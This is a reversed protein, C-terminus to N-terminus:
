RVGCGTILAPYTFLRKKKTADPDVLKLELKETKAAPAMPIEVRYPLHMAGYWQFLLNQLQNIREPTVKYDQAVRQTNEVHVLGGSRLTFERLEATDPDMPADFDKGVYYLGSLSKQSLVVTFIRVGHTSLQELSKTSTAGNTQAVGGAFLLVSDGFRPTGFKNMAQSLALHLDQGAPRKEDLLSLSALKKRLDDRTASFDSEVVPGGYTLLALSDEPRAKTLLGDTMAAIIQVASSNLRSSSDVVLIIRKPSGHTTASAPTVTQGRFKAEIQDHKMGIVYLGNQFLGGPVIISSCATNSQALVESMGILLLAIARILHTM